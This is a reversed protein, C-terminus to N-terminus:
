RQAVSEHIYTLHKHSIDCGPVACAKRQKRGASFHFSSLYNDCLKKLRIFNFKEECTKKMFEECDAVKHNKKCFYCCM